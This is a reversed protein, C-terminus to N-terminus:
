ALGKYNFDSSCCGLKKIDCRYIRMYAEAVENMGHCFPTPGPYKLYVTAVMGPTIVHGNASRTRKPWVEFVKM